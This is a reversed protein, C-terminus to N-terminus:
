WPGRSRSQSCPRDHTRGTPRAHRTRPRAPQVRTFARGRWKRAIWGLEVSGTADIRRCEVLNPHRPEVSPPNSYFLDDCHLDFRLTLPEHTLWLWLRLNGFGLSLAGNLAM